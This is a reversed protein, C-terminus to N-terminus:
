IQAMLFLKEIVQSCGAKLDSKQQIKARAGLNAAECQVVVSLPHLSGNSSRTELFKRGRSDADM